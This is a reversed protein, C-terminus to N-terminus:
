HKLNLYTVEAGREILQAITGTICEADDMHIAIVLVKMKIEKHLNFDKVYM